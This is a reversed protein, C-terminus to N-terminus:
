AGARREALLARLEAVSTREGRAISADAEALDDAIGPVAAWFATESLSEFEDASVLVAAPRGHRTIVVTEHIGEVAEVLASLQDKAESVPMTKM